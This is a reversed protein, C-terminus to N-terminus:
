EQAPVLAELPHTSGDPVTRDTGENGGSSGGCGMPNGHPNTAQVYEVGFDSEYEDSYLVVQDFGREATIEFQSQGTVGKTGLINEPAADVKGQAVVKGDKYAAWLATEAGDDVYNEVYFNRLGVTVNTQPQDFNLVVGEGQDIEGDSQGGAVGVGQAQGDTPSHTGLDSLTAASLNSYPTVKVGKQQQWMTAIDFAAAPM